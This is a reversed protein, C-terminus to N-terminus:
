TIAKLLFTFNSGYFHTWYIYHTRYLIGISKCAKTSAVNIHYNRPVNEDLYVWLFKTDFNGKSQFTTWTSHLYSIQYIQEKEQLIFYIINQKSISLSLKNAKFWSAVKRLKENMTEFINEINSNSIFLNAYDAFIIPTLQSSSKFLDHIYILFLLPGLISGQPVGCTIRRYESNQTKVLLYLSNTSTKFM